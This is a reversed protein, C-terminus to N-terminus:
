AARSVRVRLSETVPVPVTVPGQCVHGHRLASQRRPGGPTPPAAGPPGPGPPRTGFHGDHRHTVAAPSETFEFLSRGGSGAAATVHGPQSPSPAVRVWQCPGPGNVASRGPPSEARARGPAPSKSFFAGKVTVTTVAIGGGARRPMTGDAFGLVIIKRNYRNNKQFLLFYYSVLTHITRM